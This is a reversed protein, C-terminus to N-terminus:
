RCARDLRRHDSRTSAHDARALFDAITAARGGHRGGLVDDMADAFAARVGGRELAALGRATTGGPSTVERRLRSRTTARPRAAARRTGAMTETSSGSRSRAGAHRAPGGRRGVGRRGAGLVRPRRGLLAARRRDARPCTARGDGVRASCSRSRRRALPTARGPEALLTVGRRVEVPTNPQVRFVPAGPYAARLTRSRDHAGLMSVVARRRTAPRAAGGGRAARAQPRPHRPRRARGARPQVGVAEGGLEAALAARGAPAPTPARARARGLRARAGRAM